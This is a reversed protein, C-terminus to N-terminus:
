SELAELVDMVQGYDKFGPREEETAVLEIGKFCDLDPVKDTSIGYGKLIRLNGGYYRLFEDIEDYLSPNSSRIIISDVLEDLYSLRSKLKAMDEENELTIRFFIPKGLLNVSEVINIQNIEVIDLDYSQLALKIDEISVDTFEGALQIGSIWETIELFKESTLGQQGSGDIPFGIVDVGMGACYRADSLNSVNGIKVYTSLSM